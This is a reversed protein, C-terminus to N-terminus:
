RVSALLKQRWQETGQLENFTFIHLGVINGGIKESASALRKVLKTPNYVGPLLFKWLLGSQKQLFRASQGLGIGASIRILKQRNVPGPM